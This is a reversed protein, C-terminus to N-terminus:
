GGNMGIVDSMVWARKFRPWFTDGFSVRVARLMRRSVAAVSACRWVYVSVGEDTVAFVDFGFVKWLCDNHVVVCSVIESSGDVDLGPRHSKSRLPRRAALSVVM